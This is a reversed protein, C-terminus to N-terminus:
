DLHRAQVNPERRKTHPIEKRVPLSDDLEAVERSQDAWHLPLDFATAAVFSSAVVAARAASQWRWALHNRDAGADCSV